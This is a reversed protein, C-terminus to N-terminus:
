DKQWPLHLIVRTGTAPQSEVRCEGGIEAIRQRMNRLGDALANDPAQAFGRGNDEIIVTLMEERLDVRLWIETAGAHKVINHLAEKIVLFLNHRLNTSLERPPIQEPFDLRCRIGAPRLYDVAFQGAYDILHPLTDNRPNVAWVIEDLSKVAQRATSSINGIREAVKDPEGRDQQALEGLFAIQTLDAGLDDHIDKAIRAREKQLAAQQEMLRLRNHLRKFSVYRVIAAIVATFVALVTLRFWWTQWYFPLVVFDLSAIQQNWTGNIDYARVQFSYDGHPLRTYSVSRATYDETWNDDLGKLRYQFEVNEPSTFSLATFDFDLQHMSPPLRLITKDPAPLSIINSSSDPAPLYRDYLALTQGDVAMRTILVSPPRANAASRDPHVIALGTYMPFWLSGDQSRLAGPSNEYTAQLNPFGEGRSYAICHVRTKDQLAQALQDLQIEFIGRNGACWLWGRGDAVIQSVYDDYLGQSMGLRSYHGDKLCGLGWGAYGIWLSGDPTPYLCRISALRNTFGPTEDLLEDGEVLMLRGEASGIWIRGAADEVLARISRLQAPMKLPQLQSDRLRQLRSPTDTAIYVDGNSSELISRVDDSSLGDSQRWNRYQGDQLHYFGERRTGIWLGGKPDAAVCSFDGTPGNTGGAFSHWQNNQWSVLLGNRTTVWITGDTDQCVSRITEYPLGSELGLVEIIRPRLRNLGGGDTGVWINGEQDQALCAIELSSTPVQVTNTETARFLGHATTGIWVAGSRDELLKTGQVGNPIPPIQAFLQLQGGQQYSLLRRGSCIWIGGERRQAISEVTRPLTLLIQFKGNQFVGVDEGAAFWLHGDADSALLSPFPGYTNSSFVTVSGNKIQTLGGDIYTVWITGDSDEIIGNARADPVNTFVQASDPAICVIPGRDMGLWLRGERDLYMARVVREPVGDLSTLPFEQFQVGDFQMLGGATAVWLYGDPTQAIGSVSNDPLGDGTEWSRAFWSSDVDAAATLAACCLM